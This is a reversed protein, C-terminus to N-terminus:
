LETEYPRSRGCEDLLFLSAIKAQHTHNSEVMRFVATACLAILVM